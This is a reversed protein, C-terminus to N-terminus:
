TRSSSRTAWSGCDARSRTSWRKVMRRTATQSSDMMEAVTQVPAAAVRRSTLKDVAEPGAEREREDAGAQDHAGQAVRAQHPSEAVARDSHPDPWRTPAPRPRSRLRWWLTGKPKSDDPGSRAVTNPTAFKGAVSGGDRRSAEAHGADRSRDQVPRCAWRWG